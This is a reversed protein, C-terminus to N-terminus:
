STDDINFSDQEVIIGKVNKLRKHSDKYVTASLYKIHPNRFYWKFSYCSVMCLYKFHSIKETIWFFDKQIIVNQDSQRSALKMHGKKLFILFFM